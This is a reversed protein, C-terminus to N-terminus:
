TVPPAAATRRSKSLISPPRRPPMESHCVDSHWDVETDGLFGIPNGDEVVNSIVFIEPHRLGEDPQWAMNPGRDLEGLRRSFRILDDDELRQDRFVIVSHELWARHIADFTAPTLDRSLDVGRIEAGIVDSIPNVDIADNDVPTSLNTAM